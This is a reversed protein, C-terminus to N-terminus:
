GPTQRGSEQAWRKAANATRTTKPTLSDKRGLERRPPQPSSPLCGPGEGVRRASRTDQARGTRGPWASPPGAPAAARARCSGPWGPPHTRKGLRAGERHAAPWPRPATPTERFVRRVKGVDGVPVDRTLRTASCFASEQLGRPDPRVRLGKLLDGQERPRGGGPARPTRAANSPVQGWATESDLVASRSPRGTGPRGARACLSRCAARPRPPPGLVKLGAGGELTRTDRIGTDGRRHSAPGAGSM